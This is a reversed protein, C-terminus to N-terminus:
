DKTEGPLIPSGVANTTSRRYLHYKLAEIGILVADAYDIFKHDRLSKEADKNLEIAKDITMSM